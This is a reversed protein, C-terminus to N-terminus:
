CKWEGSGLIVGFLWSRRSRVVSREKRLEERSEVATISSGLTIRGKMRSEGNSEWQIAVNIPLAEDSTHRLKQHIVFSQGWLVLSRDVM